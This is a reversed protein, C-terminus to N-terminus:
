IIGVNLVSFQKSRGDDVEEHGRPALRLLSDYENHLFASTKMCLTLQWCVFVFSRNQVLTVPAQEIYKTHKSRFLSTALFSGSKATKKVNGTQIFAEPFNPVIDNQKV